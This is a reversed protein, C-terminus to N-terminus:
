AQWCGSALSLQLAILRKEHEGRIRTSTLPSAAPWTAVIRRSPVDSGEPFTDSLLALSPETDTGWMRTMIWTHGDEYLFV